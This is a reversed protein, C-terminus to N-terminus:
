TALRGRSRESIESVRIRWVSGRAARALDDLSPRGGSRALLARLIRVRAEMEDVREVRGRAVVSRWSGPDEVRAVTLCAAPDASLNRLKEGPGCAFCIEGEHLVYAVPVGYPGGEGLTALIGWDQSELFACADLM